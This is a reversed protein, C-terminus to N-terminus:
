LSVSFICDRRLYKFVDDLTDISLSLGYDSASIENLRSSLVMHLDCLVNM